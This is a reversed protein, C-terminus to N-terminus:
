EFSNGGCRAAPLSPPLSPAVTLVSTSNRGCVPLYIGDHPRTPVENHLVSAERVRQVGEIKDTVPRVLQAHVHRVYAVGDQSVGEIGDGVLHQSDQLRRAGGGVVRLLLLLCACRACGHRWHPGRHLPEVRAQAQVRRVEGEAVGDRALLQGEGRQVRHV